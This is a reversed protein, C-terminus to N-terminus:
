FVMQFFSHYFSITNPGLHYGGLNDCDLVYCNKTELGMGKKRSVYNFHGFVEKIM